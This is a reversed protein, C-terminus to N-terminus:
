SILQELFDGVFYSVAAAITGLLLTEVIGKVAKTQTIFTKLWGIIIFGLATLASSIIFLDTSLPNIYDVVYILLPILGITIFSIYTVLGITVPSKHDLMLQHHEQMLVKTWSSSNKTINNVVQNLIDGQLGKQKYIDAVLTKNINPQEAIANAVTAQKKLYSDRQTKNSLYAGVSMAFGDALLNAFGLIIIISSELGAGVAGAVVAFTTVCGDMGGYVFEGLYSDIFSNPKQRNDNLKDM